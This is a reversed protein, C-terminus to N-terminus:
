TKLSNVSYTLCDKGWPMRHVGFPTLAESAEFSTSSASLGEEDDFDAGIDLPGGGGGGGGPGAGLNSISSSL